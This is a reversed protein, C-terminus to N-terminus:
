SPSNTGAKELVLRVDERLREKEVGALGRWCASKRALARLAEVESLFRALAAPDHRAVRALLVSLVVLADQGGGQAEGRFEVLCRGAAQGIAYREALLVEYFLEVVSGRLEFYGARKM